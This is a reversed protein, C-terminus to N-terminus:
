IGKRTKYEYWNRLALGLAISMFVGSEKNQILKIDDFPNWVTAEIGLIGNLFESLGHLHATGGTMLMRDVGEILGQSKCYEVSKYISELLDPSCKRLVKTINLGVEGWRESHEKLVEAKEFSIEMESQIESTIEKGGFAISRTFCFKGESLITFCTKTHGIDALIITDKYPNEAFALYSNALALNDIDMICPEYGADQIIQMRENVIARPAAVFIVDMGSEDEKSIHFDIDMENLDTYIYKEAQLKITSNIESRPMVPFDLKRVIVEPSGLSTIAFQTKLKNEKMMFKIKQSVLKNKAKEDEVPAVPVKEMATVIDFFDDGKKEVRCININKTGIDIGIM